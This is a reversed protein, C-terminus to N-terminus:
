IVNDNSVEHLSKNDITTKFIDWRWLKANCDELFMKMRYKPLPDFVRGLEECFSDNADGHKGDTPAYV